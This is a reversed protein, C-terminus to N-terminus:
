ELATKLVALNSEMIDIYAGPQDPGTVAPDLILVQCGTERSIAEAADTSYQPEVLVAKVGSSKVIQVTQALEASSPESGPEREVTAVINLDFERAFYPFAEHFTVINRNPLGDLAQHMKERETELRQVYAETNAKYQEAHVPDLDALQEGINRAQQIAGSISVWVHPNAEGSDPDVILEINRSAEVIKLDSRQAAVKDMFAEMGAGNVVFIDANELTKMDSTTFQYDHLCGAQPPTLNNLSVGPVDQVINMTAIYMPYFSTVIVLDGDEAPGSPGSAPSFFRGFNAESCGNLTTLLLLAALTALVAALLGGRRNSHM